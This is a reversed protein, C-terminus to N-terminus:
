YAAPMGQKRIDSVATLRDTEQDVAIAQVTGLYDTQILDHGRRELAKRTREPVAITPGQPLNSEEVNTGAAGHYLLQNHVRAASVSGYLPM